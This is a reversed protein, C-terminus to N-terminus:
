LCLLSGGGALLPISNFVRFTIDITTMNQKAILAQEVLLARNRGGTPEWMPDAAVVVAFATTVMMIM